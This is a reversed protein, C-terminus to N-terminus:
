RTKDEFSSFVATRNDTKAPTMQMIAAIGATSIPIMPPTASQSIIPAIGPFSLEMKGCTIRYIVVGQTAVIPKPATAAATIDDTSEEIKDAEEIAPQFTNRGNNLGSIEGEFKSFTILLDMQIIPIAAVRKAIM